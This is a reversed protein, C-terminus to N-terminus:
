KVAEKFKKIENLIVDVRHDITHNAIVHQYGAEAIKKREEEHELYYKAKAVADDLTDWMICHVGDELLEELAAIRKTLLFGGAGLVEFNRMNVDDNLAINLCVKCDAYVKAAEEFRKQGFYFNPFAKFMRDLFEIREECNIYGVFGVDYHQSALEFRPYAQPEVACPLFTSTIGDKAFQAVSPKQATFVIDAQKARMLRYDYAPGSVHTDTPWYVIPDKGNKLPFVPVYPLVGRLGDEGWDCWIHADYHGQYAVDGNPALHDVSLEKRKKLANWVYLPNGDNRGLRSEYYCAIRFM